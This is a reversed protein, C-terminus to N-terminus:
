TWRRQLIESKLYLTNKETAKIPCLKGKRTLDSINQGSCDLLEAAEAANVVRHTVFSRFNAASLPVARGLWYLVTDLIGLRLDRAEWVRVDAHILQYSLTKESAM